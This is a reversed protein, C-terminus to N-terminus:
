RFSVKTPDRGRILMVRVKDGESFYNEVSSVYEKSFNAKHVFGRIKTNEIEVQIGFSNVRTVTGNHVTGLQLNKNMQTPHTTDGRSTM